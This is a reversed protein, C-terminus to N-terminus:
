ASLENKWTKGWVIIAPSALSGKDTSLLITNDSDIAIRRKPFASSAIPFGIQFVMRLSRGGYITVATTM